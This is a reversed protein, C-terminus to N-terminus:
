NNSKVGITVSYPNGTTAEAQGSLSYIAPVAPVGSIKYRYAPEGGYIGADTPNNASDFGGNKAPSNDKLVYWDEDFAPSKIWSGSDDNGGLRNFIMRWDQRWRNNSGVPLIYPEAESFFNNEYVTNYNNWIDSSM